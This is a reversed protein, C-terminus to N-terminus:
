NNSFHQEILRKDLASAPHNREPHWMIGMWPLHRHQFAEVYGGECRALAQLDTGLHNGPIGWDHFSNVKQYEAWFPVDCCPYIIHQCAVHRSIPAMSGRLYHNIMQMGRCVGLVPLVQEEAWGLLVMETVDREPAPRSANTLHSLDNGGTLILGVVEQQKIWGEPDLLANPVPLLDFGLLDLLQTWQQDLCDRREDYGAIVEVRQTVALRKM